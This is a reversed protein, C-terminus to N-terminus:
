HKQGESSSQQLFGYSYKYNKGPEDLEADAEPNKQIAPGYMADIVPSEGKFWGYGALYKEDADPKTIEEGANNYESAPESRMSEFPNGFENTYLDEVFEIERATALDHTRDLFDFLEIDLPTNFEQWSIDGNDDLDLKSYIKKLEKKSLQLDRLDDSLERLSIHGDGNEDFEEFDSVEQQQSVPRPQIALIQTEPDRYIMGNVVEGRKILDSFLLPQKKAKARRLLGVDVGLAGRNTGLAARDRFRRETAADAAASATGLGFAVSVLLTRLSMVANGALPPLDYYPRLRGKVSPLTPRNRRGIRM